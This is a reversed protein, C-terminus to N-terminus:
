LFSDYYADLQEKCICETLVSLLLWYENQGPACDTMNKSSTERISRIMDMDIEQRSVSRNELDLLLPLASLPINGNSMKRKYYRYAQSIYADFTKDLLIDSNRNMIEIRGLAETDSIDKWAYDESFSEYWAVLKNWYRLFAPDCEREPKDLMSTLEIVAWMAGLDEKWSVSERKMWLDVLHGALMNCTYVSEKKIPVLSPEALSYLLPVFCGLRASDDCDWCRSACEDFLRNIHRLIVFHKEATDDQRTYSNLEHISLYIKSLYFLRNDPLKHNIRVVQVKHWIDDLISDSM